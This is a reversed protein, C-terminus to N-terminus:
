MKAVTSTSAATATITDRLGTYDASLRTSHKTVEAAIQSSISASNRAMTSTSTYTPATM